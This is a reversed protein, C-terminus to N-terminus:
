KKRGGKAPKRVRLTMGGLDLVVATDADDGPSCLDPHLRYIVRRGQKEDDLLGTQRMVGLHHSMNVMPVGLAEALAGVHQPGAALVDVIRLRTPEAVATLLAAVKKAAAYDTM